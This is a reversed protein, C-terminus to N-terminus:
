WEHGLFPGVSTNRERSVDRLDHLIKYFGQIKAIDWFVISM